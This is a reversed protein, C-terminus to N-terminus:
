LLTGAFTVSLCQIKPRVALPPSCKALRTMKARSVWGDDKSAYDMRRGQERLGDTMRARAALSFGADKVQCQNLSVPDEAQPRLHRPGSLRLHRPGSPWLHRPGSLRLHRPGSPWLHRP